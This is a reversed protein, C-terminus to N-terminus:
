AIESQRIGFASHHRCLTFSRFIAQRAHTLASLVPSKRNGFASHRIIAAFHSHVFFPRWHSRAFGSEGGAIPM